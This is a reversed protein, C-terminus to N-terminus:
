IPQRLDLALIARVAEVDSVLTGLTFDYGRFEGYRRSAAAIIPGLVSNDHWESYRNRQASFYHAILMAHDVVTRDFGKEAAVETLWQERRALARQTREDDDDDHEDPDDAMKPELTSRRRAIEAYPALSGLAQLLGILILGAGIILLVAFIWVFM